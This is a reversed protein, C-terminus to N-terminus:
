CKLWLGLGCVCDPSGGEFRGAKLERGAARSGGWGERPGSKEELDNRNM